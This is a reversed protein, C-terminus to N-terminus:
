NEANKKCILSFLMQAEPRKPDMAVTLQCKIKM